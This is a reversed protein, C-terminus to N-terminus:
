GSCCHTTDLSREWNLSMLRLSPYAGDQQGRTIQFVADYCCLTQAVLWLQVHLCVALVMLVSKITDETLTM